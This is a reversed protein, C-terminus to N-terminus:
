RLHIHKAEVSLELAGQSAETIWMADLEEIGPFQDLLDVTISTLREGQACSFRYEATIESHTDDHAHDEDHHGHGEDHHEDHHDASHKDGDHHKHEDEHEHHDIDKNEVASVDVMIEKVNCRTGSFTFLRQAARLTSEAHEVVHNQEASM